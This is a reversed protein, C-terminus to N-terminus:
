YGLKQRGMQIELAKAGVRRAVGLIVQENRTLDDTLAVGDRVCFALVVEAVETLNM